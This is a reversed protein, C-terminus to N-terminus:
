KKRMLVSEAGSVLSQAVRDAAWCQDFLCHTHAGLGLTYVMVPSLDNQETQLSEFQKLAEPPVM